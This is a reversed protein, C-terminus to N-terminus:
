GALAACRSLSSTIILNSIILAAREKDKDDLHSVTPVTSHQDGFGIGYQSPACLCPDM